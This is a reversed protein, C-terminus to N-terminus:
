LAGHYVVLPTHSAIERLARQSQSQEEMPVMRYGDVPHFAVRPRM